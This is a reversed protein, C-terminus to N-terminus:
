AGPKAKQQLGRTVIHRVISSIRENRARAISYLVQYEPDPLWTSVSARPVAVRPRGGRNRPAPMTPPQDSPPADDAGM